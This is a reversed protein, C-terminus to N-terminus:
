WDSAEFLTNLLDERAQGTLPLRKAADDLTTTLVETSIYRGQYFVHREILGPRALTFMQDFFLNGLGYSFFTGQYFGFGHPVHSQSGSVIVAGAEAALRSDSRLATPAAHSEIEQHQFTVITNYGDNKLRTIEAMFADRECPLAGPTTATAFNQEPGAANCGVFAIRNGNHEILLPQWAAALNEGGGYTLLGQERYIDLTELLAQGGWDMLHNGTLEVIDTGAYKLLEVYGPASCFRARNYFPLAPPCESYFSVENSIHTYDADQLWDRIDQAPTTIGNLEMQEATHRVLATTGTMVIVTMEDLNRNSAPLKIWELPFDQADEGVLGIWGKLPYAELNLDRDVASMGSVRLVKWRPELAEFPVIAWAKEREWALELLQDEPEVEVSGAVPQGWLKTFVALTQSSLLLPAGEFGNISAGAWASRIQQITVGDQVTNFPAVLAYVWLAVEHTKLAQAPTLVDLQIEAADREVGLEIRSEDVEITNMFAEPLDAAMWVGAKSVKQPDTTPTPLITGLPLATPSPMPTADNAGVPLRTCGAIVMLLCVFLILWRKGNVRNFFGGFQIGVM